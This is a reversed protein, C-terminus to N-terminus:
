NASCLAIQSTMHLTKLVVWRVHEPDGRVGWEGKDDM